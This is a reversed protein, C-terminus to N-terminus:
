VSITSGDSLLTAGGSGTVRIERADTKEAYDLIRALIPAHRGMILMDFDYFLEFDRTEFPPTLAEQPQPPAQFALRGGSPGPPRPAFPVTYRDEAPLITNCRADFDLM